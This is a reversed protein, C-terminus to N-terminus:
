TPTVTALEDFLFRDGERTRKFVNKDSGSEKLLGIDKLIMLASRFRANGYSPKDYPQGQGLIRGSDSYFFSGSKDYALSLHLRIVFRNIIYTSLNRFSTHWVDEFRQKLEHALVPVTINEYPDDQVAQSLWNGYPTNEWQLYRSSLIICLVISLAISEHSGVRDKQDLLSHIISESLLHNIKLARGARRSSEFDFQCLEAATIGCLGWPTLDLFTGKYDIEILERFERDFSRSALPALIKEISTGELRNLNSRSVVSVFLHELAASLYYHFYFMRWRRAIDELQKPIRLARVVDRSDFAQEFYVAEGFTEENLPIGYGDFVNALHMILLLSHRRWEHSPSALGNHNFFAARLLKRDAGGDRLECLGGYEGWKRLTRRTIKNQTIPNRLGASSLVLGYASAINDGINSLAAGTLDLDVLGKEDDNEAAEEETDFFGLNVLSAFYANLAPSRVFSVKDLDIEESGLYKEYGKLIDESGTLRGDLCTQGQHHLVAGLVFAKEFTRLRDRLSQNNKFNQAASFAWPLFSYYRARPTISTICFFLQGSLRASVRLNLGLPDLGEAVATRATWSLLIQENTKMM